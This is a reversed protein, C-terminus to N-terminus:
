RCLGAHPGNAGTAAMAPCVLVWMLAMMWLLVKKKM